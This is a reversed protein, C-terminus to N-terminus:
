GKENALDVVWHELQDATLFGDAAGISGIKYSAFIIAKKIAEYPDRTQLYIHNFCSFLSDGAGITNVVPRTQVAPIRELFNDDKVALLAGEGGLGIVVIDTGYRSQIRRAWEEPACPLAEDSMFLINAAAMYDQNYGDELDAITHVDTAIVKGAQQALRLFPRTWNINALIALSVDALAAEFREVPYKRTQIDKLDTYIQRRGNEDYLIVSQATQPMASLVLETPIGDEQLAHRVLYGSADEGILSLFHLSSGLTQLAKAINYGVGSVSSQVGFFPYNVPNYQIPFQDVRLTTEINILGAVLIKETM